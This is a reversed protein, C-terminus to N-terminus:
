SSTASCAASGTFNTGFRGTHDLGIIMNLDQLHAVRNPEYGLKAFPIRGNATHCDICTLAQEKPAVMHNQVWYMETSAWGMQGSFTKGVAAMGTNIANTWNYGKWYATTDNANLAFLHPIVLTNSVVDYPQIATFRKVPIIRARAEDKNGQLQNLKNMQAPNITNTLETWIVSGNFWVYDPAVNSAWTFSGKM